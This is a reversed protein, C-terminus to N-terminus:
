RVLALQWIAAGLQLVFGLVIVRFISGIMDLGLGVISLIAPCQNM